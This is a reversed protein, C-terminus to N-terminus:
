LNITSREKKKSWKKYWEIAAVQAVDIAAMVTGVTGGVVVFWFAASGVNFWEYGELWKNSKEKSQLNQVQLRETGM